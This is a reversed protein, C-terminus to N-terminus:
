DYTGVKEINVILLASTLPHYSSYTGIGKYFLTFTIVFRLAFDSYFTFLVIKYLKVYCLIYRGAHGLPYPM